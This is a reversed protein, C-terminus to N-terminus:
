VPAFICRKNWIYITKVTNKKYFVLKVQLARTNLKKLNKKIQFNLM